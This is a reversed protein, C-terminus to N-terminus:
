ATSANLNIPEAFGSNNAFLSAKTPTVSCAINNASAAPKSNGSAALESAFAKFWNLRGASSDLLTIFAKAAPELNPAAAIGSNLSAIVFNPTAAALEFIEISSDIPATSNNASFPIAPASAPVLSLFTKPCSSIALANGGLAALCSALNPTFVSM